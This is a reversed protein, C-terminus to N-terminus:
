VYKLFTATVSNELTLQGLLKKQFSQSGSGGKPEGGSGLFNIAGKQHKEWEFQNKMAEGVVQCGLKYSGLGGLGSLLIAHYYDDYDIPLPGSKRKRPLFFNRM